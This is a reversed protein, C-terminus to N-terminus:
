SKLHMRADRYSPKATRGDTHEDRGRLFCHKQCNRDHRHLSDLWVSNLTNQSDRKITKQSTRGDTGGFVTINWM